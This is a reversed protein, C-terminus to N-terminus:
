SGAESAVRMLETCSYRPEGVLWLIRDFIRVRRLGKETLLELSASYKTYLATWVHVFEAYSEGDGQLPSVGGEIKSIVWIARQAYSDFLPVSDPYRLWLAKSALSTFNRPRGYAQQAVRCVDAHAAVLEGTADLNRTEPQCDSWGLFAAAIATRQPGPIGHFVEYDQLWDRVTEVRTLDAKDRVASVVREDWDAEGKRQLVNVAAPGFYRIVAEFDLM